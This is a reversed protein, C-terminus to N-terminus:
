TVRYRYTVGRWIEPVAEEREAVWAPFRFAHTVVPTGPRLESRLKEGLPEMIGRFLYCVVADGEALSVRLFNRRRVEVNRHGGLRARLKAVLWPVPSLEYAIVTSEPHARALVFALGGWGAGLELITGQIREPLLALIKRRAPFSTPTPPIGLRFGYGVILATAIGALILVAYGIPGPTM